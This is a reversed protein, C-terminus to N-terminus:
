RIMNGNADYAIVTDGYKTVAHPKPVTGNRSLGREGYELAVGEKYIMNGISDYDYGFTGYSGAATKLRDLDDYIFSQTATNVADKIEKINGINDFQYGLDQIVGASSATTLHDLRLTNPDYRYNTVSGNGYQVKTLQGTSVQPCPLQDQPLVFAFAEKCPTLTLLHTLILLCSVFKFPRIRM